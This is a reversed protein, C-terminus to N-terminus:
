KHKPVLYSATKVAFDKGKGYVVEHIPEGRDNMMECVWGHDRESVQPFLKARGVAPKRTAWWQGVTQAADARQYSYEAEGVQHGFLNVYQVCWGDRRNAHFMTVGVVTNLDVLIEVKPLPRAEPLPRPAPLCRM